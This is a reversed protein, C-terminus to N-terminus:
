FVELVTDDALQQLRVALRIDGREGYVIEVKMNLRLMEITGFESGVMQVQVPLRHDPEGFDYTFGSIIATRNYLTISQIVGRTTRAMVAGEAMDGAAVFEMSRNADDPEAGLGNATLSLIAMIVQVRRRL